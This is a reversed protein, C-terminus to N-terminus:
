GPASGNSLQGNQGSLVINTHNEPMKARHRNDAIEPRWQPFRIHRVRRSTLWGFEAICDARHETEVVVGNMGLAGRHIPDYPEDTEVAHPRALVKAGGFRLDFCEQRVQGHVSVDSGRGLVLRHM